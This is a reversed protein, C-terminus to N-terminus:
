VPLEDARAMGLHQRALREVGEAQGYLELQHTLRQREQEVAARQSQLDGAYRQLRMEQVVLTGLAVLFYVGGVALLLDRRAWRRRPRPASDPQMCARPRTPPLSRM